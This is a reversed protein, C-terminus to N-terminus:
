STLKLFQMRMSPAFIPLKFKLAAEALEELINGSLSKPSIVEPWCGCVREYISHALVYDIIGFV